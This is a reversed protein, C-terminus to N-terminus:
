EQEILVAMRARLDEEIMAFVSQPDGNVKCQKILDLVRRLAAGPKRSSTAQRGSIRSACWCM